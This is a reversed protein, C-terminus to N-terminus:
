SWARSSPRLKVVGHVVVDTIGVVGLVVDAVGVFVAGGGILVVDVIGNIGVVVFRSCQCEFHLYSRRVDRGHM